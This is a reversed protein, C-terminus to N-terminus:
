HRHEALLCILSGFQAFRMYIADLISNRQSLCTHIDKLITDMQTKMNRPLPDIFAADALQANNNELMFLVHSILSLMHSSDSAYM